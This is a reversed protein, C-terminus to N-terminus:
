LHSLWAMFCASHWLVSTKSSHQHCLSGLTGQVALFDYWDIRFSISGSYENCLSISFSFSWYKPWRICLTSESSFVRISAIISPLLLLSSLSYPPQIVDSVWHVHIQALELLHYLVPFRPRICDMPNCLTPCSQTVSCCCSCKKNQNQKKQHSM